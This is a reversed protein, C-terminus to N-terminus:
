PESANLPLRAIVSYGGEPRPGARLEGGFLAARERMGILGHTQGPGDDRRTSRRRRHSPVASGDDTVELELERELYRLVVRASAQGGHKLTNTLAEQVIRYISLDIGPPLLHTQGEVVLQVRLGADNMHAVLADLQDVGPQPELPRSAGDMRLIGLLRRMEALAERGTAEISKLAEGAREPMANLVRRAGGAQVVMVSVNHAIVDHLERAIRSREDAAARRANEERERELRGARDELDAAYRRITAMNVGLGWVALVVIVNPVLEVLADGFESVNVLRSAVYAVVAVSAAVTATRRDCYAGVSYIAVFAGLLPAQPYGLAEHAVLAAFTLALVALPFRRRWAVPVSGLLLVGVTVAASQRPNQPQVQVAVALDIALLMVAVIADMAM